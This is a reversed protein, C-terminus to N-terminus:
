FCIKYGLSIELFRKRKQRKEHISAGRLKRTGWKNNKRHGMKNFNDSCFGVIELIDWDLDRLIFEHDHRSNRPRSFGRKREISDIGFSLSTIELTERGVSPHNDRRNILICFHIFDASKRRSDTDILFCNGIIWTRRHSSNGLNVIKITKEICSDSHLFTRIMRFNCKFLVTNGLNDGKYLMQVISGFDMDHRRNWEKPCIGSDFGNFSVHEIATKNSKLDIVRHIGNRVIQFFFSNWFLCLYRNHDVPEHYFILFWELFTEPIRQLKRVLGPFIHELNILDIGFFSCAERCFSRTRLASGRLFSKGNGIEREIGMISSTFTTMSESCFYRKKFLFDDISVQSQFFSGYKRPGIMYVIHFDESRRCLFVFDIHIDGIICEALFCPFYDKM